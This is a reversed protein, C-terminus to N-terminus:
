LSILRGQLRQNSCTIAGAWGTIVVEADQNVPSRTGPTIPDFERDQHPRYHVYKTNLFLMNKATAYGGVGGDCIVTAGNFDIGDFGLKAKKADVFRQQPQAAGWFAAYMYNDAIILDPREVGRVQQLWLQQMYQLINSSTIVVGPNVVTPRWFPNVARDINGYVGVTPDTPVMALMGVIAKGGMGTGDGYSFESMRNAMTAEANKVRKDMLSIMKEEGANKLKEEGTIIVQVSCLKLSFEAASMTQAQAVPLLDTGSYFSFNPNEAYSIEELITDGGDIKDDDNGHERLWSFLANNKIVNDRLKMRRNAITTTLIESYNINPSPM